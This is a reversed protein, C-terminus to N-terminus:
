VARGLLEPELTSRLVPFYSPHTDICSPETTLPAMMPKRMLLTLRHRSEAVVM